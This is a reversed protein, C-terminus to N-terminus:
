YKGRLHGRIKEWENLPLLIYFLGGFHRCKCMCLGRVGCQKFFRSWYWIRIHREFTIPKLLRAPSWDITHKPSQKSEKFTLFHIKLLACTSGTVSTSCVCEQSSADTGTQLRPSSWTCQDLCVPLQEEPRDGANEKGMHWVILSEAIRLKWKSCSTLAKAIWRKMSCNFSLYLLFKITSSKEIEQTRHACRM